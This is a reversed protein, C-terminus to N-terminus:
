KNLDDCPEEVEAWVKCLASDQKQMTIQKKLRLEYRVSFM